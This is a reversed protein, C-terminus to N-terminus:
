PRRLNPMPVMLKFWHTFAGPNESIEKEIEAPSVYRWDEVEETNIQPEQDSVGIYVYDVEHETLDDLPTKYIFKYAFHLTARIGMEQELKRAMADEMDEGPRPHSCCTNTWLGASHYKKGSRKQLLWEGKSNSLLISFARHLAGKQHAELKEMTGVANDAEDVLIVHEM